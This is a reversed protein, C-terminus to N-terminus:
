LILATEPNRPRLPQLRVPQPSLPQQKGAATAGQAHIYRMMTSRYVASGHLLHDNAENNINLM